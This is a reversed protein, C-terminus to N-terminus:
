CQVLVRQEHGAKGPGHPLAELSSLFLVKHNIKWFSPPSVSFDPTEGLVKGEYSGTTCIVKPYYLEGPIQNQSELDEMLSTVESSSHAGVLLWEPKPPVM